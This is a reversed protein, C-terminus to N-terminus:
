LSRDAPFRLRPRRGREDAFWRPHIHNLEAAPAASYRCQPQGAALPDSQAIDHARWLPFTRDGTLEEGRSEMEFIPYAGRQEVVTERFDALEGDLVATHCNAM